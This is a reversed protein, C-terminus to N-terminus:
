IGEEEIIEHLLDKIDKKKLGLSFATQVFTLASEEAIKKRLHSIKKIEETMFTGQGRRTFLLGETELERYARQVTNPNVKLELALERVSPLQQGPSFNGGAMLRYLKEKIQLYIPREHNFQM